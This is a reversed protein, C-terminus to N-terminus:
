RVSSGSGTRDRFFQRGVDMDSHMQASLEDVSSFRMEPRHFALLTVSVTQDYLDGTFDYIYTEITVAPRNEIGATVTPRIGINTIGNFVTSEICVESFYVGFDSRNLVSSPDAKITQDADAPINSFADEDPILNVTPMGITRGLEKGHRVKGTIKLPLSIM